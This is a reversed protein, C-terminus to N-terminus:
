NSNFKTVVVGEAEVRKTKNIYILFLPSQREGKKKNVEGGGRVLMKNKM